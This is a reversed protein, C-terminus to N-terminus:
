RIADLRGGKGWWWCGRRKGVTSVACRRGNGELMTLIKLLPCHAPSIFVSIQVVVVPIMEVVKAISKSKVIIALSTM